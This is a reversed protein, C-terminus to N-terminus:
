LAAAVLFGAVATTASAAGWSVRTVGTVVAFVSEGLVILTLLGFREPIHRPHIPARPIQRWALVPASLEAVLAVGWLVYTWPRPVAVSVLWVINALGFALLFTTTLARAEPVHRRARGYLVLLVTRVGVYALPFGVTAGRFVGPVTTALVAVGFM